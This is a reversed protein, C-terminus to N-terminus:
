IKYSKIKPYTCTCPANKCEHCNKHYLTALEEALNINLSNFVGIICSFYDAAELKVADFEEETKTNKYAWISESVEGMEEALHVGAHEITRAQSPYIMNFMEQFEQLTDPRKSEDARVKQRQEPRLEKCSCPCNNCYSCVYPFRRWTEEELDIGLRNLLSIFFSLSIMANKKTKAVDKKRIGKLGRMGFRQVNDLMEGLEFKRNNPIEYVEKIFLHLQQISMDPLLTSM